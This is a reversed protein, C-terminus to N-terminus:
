FLRNEQIKRIETKNLYYGLSFWIPIMVQVMHLIDVTVSYFSFVFLTLKFVEPFKNWRKIISIAILFLPVIFIFGYDGLLRILTNDAVFSEISLYSLHSFVGFQPKWSIVNNQFFFEWKLLRAEMTEELLVTSNLFAQLVEQVFVTNISLGLIIPVFFLLVLHPLISKRKIRTSTNNTFDWILIILSVIIATRSLTLVVLSFTFLNCILIFIRKEVFVRVFVMFYVLSFGLQVRTTFLSTLGIGIGHRFSRVKLPEGWFTIKFSSVWDPNFTEIITFLLVILSLLLPLTYLQKENLKDSQCAGVVILVVPYFLSFRMGAVTVLRNESTAFSIVMAIFIYIILLGFHYNIIPLALLNRHFFYFFCFFVFLLDRIIWSFGAGLYLSVYASVYFIGLLFLDLKSLFNNKKM